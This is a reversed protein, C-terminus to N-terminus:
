GTVGSGVPDGSRAVIEAAPLVLIRDGVDLRLNGHPDLGVFRGEVLGEADDDDTPAALRCRLTDGPRHVLLERFRDIRPETREIAVSVAELLEAALEAVGVSSGLERFSTSSELPRSEVNVGFGVATPILGEVVGMAEVLVGGLKRGDM